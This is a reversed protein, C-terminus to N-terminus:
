LRISWEQTKQGDHSRQNLCFQVTCPILPGCQRLSYPLPSRPVVQSSLVWSTRIVVERTHQRWHGMLSEIQGNCCTYAGIHKSDLFIDAM